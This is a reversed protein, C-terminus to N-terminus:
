EKFFRESMPIGELQVRQLFYPVVGTAVFRGEVKGDADLGEPEFRYIDEVVFSGEEGLAALQSIRTVKRSGDSQQDMQVIIDLGHLLQQRVVSVPVQREGTMALNETRLAAEEPTSAHIVALSGRHGSNIAQIYDFCEEGRLEGLIIRSPRMRLSNRFCATTTIEGFGEVNPARTLMRVVNPQQFKLELTDEIVVIREHDPIAHTLLEMLTTKGSGSAGSFLIAVHAQVCARLFAAMRTDLSERAVLDELESLSRMYKRITLQPGGVVVPPIAINVRSGDPLSLDVMPSSEDVRKGPTMEVLRTVLARLAREDKFGTGYKYRKGQRELFITHPGNVMVETVEPDLMPQMLPGLRLMELAAENALFETDLDRVTTFSPDNQMENAIEDALARIAQPEVSGRDKDNLREQIRSKFERASDTPATM